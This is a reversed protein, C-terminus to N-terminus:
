TGGLYNTITYAFNMLYGHLAESGSETMPNSNQMFGTVASRVPEMNLVYCLVATAASAAALNFLKKYDLANSKAQNLGKKVANDLLATDCDRTNEVYKKFLENKM